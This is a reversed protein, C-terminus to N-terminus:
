VQPKENFAKPNKSPLFPRKENSDGDQHKNEMSSPRHEIPKNRNKQLIVVRTLLAVIAIVAVTGIISCSIIMIIQGRRLTRFECEGGPLVRKVEHISQCEASCLLADEGTCKAFTCITKNQKDVTMSNIREFGICTYDDNAAWCALTNKLGACEKAPKLNPLENPNVLQCSDHDGVSKIHWYPMCIKKDGKERISCPHHGIPCGKPETKEQAAPPVTARAAAKEEATARICEDVGRKLIVEKLDDYYLCETGNEVKCPHTTPPCGETVCGGASVNYSTLTDANVCVPLYNGCNIYFQKSCGDWQWKSTLSGNVIRNLPVCSRKGSVTVEVQGLPCGQFECTGSEPDVLYQKLTCLLVGDKGPCLTWEKVCDLVAHGSGLLRAEPMEYGLVLYDFFYLKMYKRMLEPTSLLKQLEIKRKEKGATAHPTKGSTLQQTIYAISEEDVGVGKFYQTLDDLLKKQDESSYRILHYEELMSGFECRWNQPMFHANVHENRRSWVSTQQYDSTYNQLKDLICELDQCEQCRARDLCINVYASMFRELPNRVLSFKKIDETKKRMYRPVKPWRDAENIGLCPRLEDWQTFFDTEANLSRKQDHLYCMIATLLTSMNKYITCATLNYHTAFRYQSPINLFPAALECAHKSPCLEKFVEYANILPGDEFTSLQRQFTLRHAESLGFYLELDDLFDIEITKRQEVITEDVEAEDKTLNDPDPLCYSIEEETVHVNRFVKELDAIMKQDEESSYRILEYEVLMTGFDCHWNQPLFHANLHRRPNRGWRRKARFDEAFQLLKDLICNLDLCEMCSKETIFKELPHRILSFKAVDTINLGMLGEVSGWDEAENQNRCPRLDDWQSYFDAKANLSRKKDHLYCMIATLLTSMNKYITCATLGYSKSFRYQSPAELFPPALSCNESSPCLEKFTVYASHLYSDNLKTLQRGMTLKKPENLQFFEVISSLFTAEINQRHDESFETMRMPNPEERHAPFHAEVGAETIRFPLESIGFAGNNVDGSPVRIIRSDDEKQVFVLQRAFASVWQQGLHPRPVDDYTTIGNVSIVVTGVTAIEELLELVETVISRGNRLDGCTTGYLANISSDIILLAPTVLDLHESIKELATILARAGNIRSFAIRTLASAPNQYARNELIQILRSPRFSGNTDLWMCRENPQEILLNAVLTYLFQTKGTGTLGAIEFLSGNQSQLPGIAADLAPVGLRLRFTKFGYEDLIQRRWGDM